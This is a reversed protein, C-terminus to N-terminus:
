RGALAIKLNPNRAKRVECFERVEGAEAEGGRLTHSSYKGGEEEAELFMSM